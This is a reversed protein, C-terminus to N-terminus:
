GMPAEPARIIAVSMAASLIRFRLRPIALRQLPPPSAMAIASSITVAVYVNATLQVRVQRVPNGDVTGESAPLDFPGRVFNEAMKIALVLM